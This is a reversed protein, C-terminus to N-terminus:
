IISKIENLKKIEIKIHKGDFVIPKPKDFYFQYIEVTKDQKKLFIELDLQTNIFKFQIRNLYIPSVKISKVNFKSNFFDYGDIIVYGDRQLESKLKVLDNNSIGDFYIYPAYRDSNPTGVVKNKSWKAKILLVIDKLLNFNYSPNTQVIFVREHPENNLGIKFLMKNLTRLQSERSKFDAYSSNFIIKKNEHILKDIENKSTKRLNNKSPPNKTVVDLLLSSILSYYIEAERDTRSYSVKIIEIVSNYQKEFDEAYILTFNKIFENKDIDSFNIDKKGLILQLESITLVNYSAPIGKLYIYLIFKKEKNVKFQELLKIIPVKIKEKQKAKSYSTDHHKVQVYYDDYGFDQIQEIQITKKPNNFLELITKDFQFKYGKLAIYAGDM